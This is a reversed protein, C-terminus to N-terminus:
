ERLRCIEPFLSIAYLPINFLRSQRKMNLLTTRAVVPPDYKRAFFTLSKSKPNIGAKVELPIVSDAFTCIFDVEARGDSQWYNLDQNQNAKLQQAVYNEVLAGEFQRFILDGQVMAAPDVGAMAGLLGVDLVYLKFINNERYAQLPQRATKVRCSKLILGAKELWVLANEFERLRASRKLNSFIFKKNEKALQGPIAQWIMDLKPIDPANAYKAFDLTYGTLIGKQIRRIEALDQNTAYQSVAEPMGGTVYYIRLHEILKRHLPDPLPTCERIGCIYERLQYGGIADLFEMFTMPFLNLFDIKGVPFTGPRSLTIGLLSGAAAIHVSPHDECFYKLAKLAGNSAQIEDFVILDKDPDISQGTYISLNRLIEDPRVRDVFFDGLSPDEEFNFYALGDYERSGFTKLLHTKGTQRAGIMLLPKRRSSQKWALLDTYADRKM